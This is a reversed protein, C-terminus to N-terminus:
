IAGLISFIPDDFDFEENFQDEQLLNLSSHMLDLINAEDKLRTSLWDFGLFALLDLKAFGLEYDNSVCSTIFEHVSATNLETISSFIAVYYIEKAAKAGFFVHDRIPITDKHSKNTIDIDSSKILVLGISAAYIYADRQDKIVGQSISTLISSVKKSTILKYLIEKHEPYIYINAV